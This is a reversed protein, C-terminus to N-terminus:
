KPCINHEYNNNHVQFRNRLSTFIKNCKNCKGYALNNLEEQIVRQEIIRKKMPSDDTYNEENKKENENYWCCCHLDYVWDNCDSCLIKDFHTNQISHGKCYSNLKFHNNINNINNNKYKVVGKSVFYMFIFHEMSTMEKKYIYNYIYSLIIDDNEKELYNLFYSVEIQNDNNIQMYDNFYEDIINNISVM